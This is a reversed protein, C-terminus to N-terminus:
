MLSILYFYIPPNHACATSVCFPDWVGNKCASYSEYGSCSIDNCGPYQCDAASSCPAYGQVSNVLGALCVILLPFARKGACGVKGRTSKNSKNFKNKVRIGEQFYQILNLVLDTQLFPTSLLLAPPHPADRTHPIVPTSHWPHTKDLPAIQAAHSIGPTNRFTTGRSHCAVDPTTRTTKKTVAM